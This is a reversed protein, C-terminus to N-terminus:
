ASSGSGAAAAPCHATGAAPNVATRAAEAPPSVVARGTAPGGVSRRRPASSALTSTRSVRAATTATTAKTLGPPRSGSPGSGDVATGPEAFGPTAGADPASSAVPSPLPFAFVVRGSADEAAVTRGVLDAPAGAVETVGLRFVAELRGGLAVVRLVVVEPVVLLGVRSDVDAGTRSVVLAAM